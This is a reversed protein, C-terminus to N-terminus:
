MYRRLHPCLGFMSSRRAVGRWFTRKTTLLPFVGDRLSFRMSAGFKSFTGTGTRDMRQDGHDLIERILDLYQHEEHRANALTPRKSASRLAYVM